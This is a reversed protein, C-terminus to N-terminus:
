DHTAELAKHELISATQIVLREGYRPKWGSAISRSVSWGYERAFQAIQARSWGFREQIEEITFLPQSM